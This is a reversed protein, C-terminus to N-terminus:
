KYKLLVPIIGCVRIQPHLDHAQVLVQLSVINTSQDSMSSGSRSDCRAPRMSRHRDTKSLETMPTANVSRM